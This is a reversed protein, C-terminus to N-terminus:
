SALERGPAAAVTAQRVSAFAAEDLPFRWMLAASLAHGVAPALAFFLRLGDTATGPNAQGPVFGIWALVQFAIGV